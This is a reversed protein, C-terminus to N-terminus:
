ADAPVPVPVPIASDPIPETESVEFRDILGMVEFIGAQYKTWDIDVQTAKRKETYNEGPRESIEADRLREYLQKGRLVTPNPELVAELSRLMGQYYSYEKKAEKADPNPHKFLQEMKLSMGHLIEVLTLGEYRKQTIALILSLEEATPEVAESSPVGDVKSIVTTHDPEAVAKEVKTLEPEPKLGKAKKTKAKKLEVKAKDLRDQARDLKAQAEDLRAKSRAKGNSKKAAAKAKAKRKAKFSKLSGPRGKAIWAMPATVTESGGLVAWSVLALVLLGGLAIVAWGWGIGTLTWSIIKGGSALLWAAGGALTRGVWKAGTWVGKAGGVAWSWMKRGVKAVGRRAKVVGHKTNKWGKRAVRTVKNGKRRSKAKVKKAKQKAKLKAKAKAEARQQSRVARKLDKKKLVRTRASPVPVNEPVLGQGQSVREALRANAEDRIAMYADPTLGEPIYIGESLTTSM